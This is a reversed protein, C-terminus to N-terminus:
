TELGDIGPEMIMDLPLLDACHDRMYEIAEEGSSVSTVSYGAPQQPPHIALHVSDARAFPSASKAKACDRERYRVAQELSSQQKQTTSIFIM